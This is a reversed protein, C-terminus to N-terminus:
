VCDAAPSASSLASLQTLELGRLAGRAKNVESHLPLTVLSWKRYHMTTVPALPVQSVQAVTVNHPCM